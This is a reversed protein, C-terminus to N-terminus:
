KKGFISRLASGASILQGIKDVTRLGMYGLVISPAWDPTHVYDFEGLILFIFSVLAILPRINNTLWSGQASLDKHLEMVAQNDSVAINAVGTVTAGVSKATETVADAVKGANNLVEGPNNEVVEIVRSVDRQIFFMTIAHGIRGFFGRKEEM